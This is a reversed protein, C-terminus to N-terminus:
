DPLSLASGVDFGGKDEPLIPKSFHTDQFPDAAFYFGRLFLIIRYLLSEQARTTTELQQQIKAIDPHNDGFLNRKELLAMRWLREADAYKRLRSLALGQNHMLNLVRVRHPQRIIEVLEKWRTRIEMYGASLYHHSRQGDIHDSGYLKRVGDLTEQWIRAAEAYYGQSYLAQGLLSKTALTRSDQDGYLNVRGDLVERLLGIAEQDRGQKLFSLALYHMAYLIDPVSRRQEKKRLKLIKKRDDLVRFGPPDGMVDYCYALIEMIDVTSPHESHPPVKRIGLRELAMQQIELAEELHRAAKGYQGQFMHTQALYYLASSILHHHPELHAKRVRLVYEWKKMAKEYDLMYFNITHLHWTVADITESAESGYTLSRAEAAEREMLEMKEFDGLYGYASGLEAKARTKRMETENHLHLTENITEWIQKFRLKQGARVFIRALGARDDVHLKKMIDWMLNVHPSLYQWLDDGAHNTACVLLRVSAAQFKARDEDPIQRGSWELLLPHFRLTVTEHVTVLSVFAYTLLDELVSDVQADHFLGDPCFIAKLLKTTEHYEAARDMMNYLEYKFDSLGAFSFIERPLDSYHFFSLVRLLQLARPSLAGLAFAFAAYAGHPYRLHDLQQTSRQFIFPGGEKLRRSFGDFCLHKRIYCGVQIVAIPLLGVATVIEYAEEKQEATVNKEPGFSSSLLALIAEGETMMGLPLHKKPTLTALFPNRTTILISGHSCKPIFESLSLSPDDANDLIILWNPGIENNPHAFTNLIETFTMRKYKQHVGSM